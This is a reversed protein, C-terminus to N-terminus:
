SGHGGVNRTIYSGSPLAPYALDYRAMEEVLDAKSASKPKWARIDIVTILYQHTLGREAAQAELLKVSNDYDAAELFVPVYIGFTAKEALLYLPLQIGVGDQLKSSNFLKVEILCRLQRGLSFKFDLYGRGTLPERNLDINLPECLPRLWHKLAIQVEEESRLSTKGAGLNNVLLKHGDDQEILRRVEGMVRLVASYFEGESQVTSAPTPLPRAASIGLERVFTSINEEQIRASHPQVAAGAPLTDRNEFLWRRLFENGVMWNDGARVLHGLELLERLQRQLNAAEQPTMMSALQDETITSSDATISLIRQGLPEMHDFDIRFYADLLHDIELDTSEVPRLGGSRPGTAVFLRECLLQVLYPHRNTHRIIDALTTPEVEIQFNSQTQRTLSVAGDSSFPRLNIQQFGFLFPSTIWDVAASNLQRLYQTSALITRMDGEQLTKRLRALYAPEHLAINVLVESEDILLLLQRDHEAVARSITRLGAVADLGYYRSM